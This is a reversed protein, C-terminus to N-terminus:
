RIQSESHYTFERGGKKEVVTATEVVSQRVLQVFEQLFSDVGAKNLANSVVHVPRNGFISSFHTEWDMEFSDLLNKIHLGTETDGEISLCRAFFLSDPDEARTALLLFDVLRGRICVDWPEGSQDRVVRTDRVQFQWLNGTDTITLCIRKDNLELLREGESPQSSLLHNAILTIVKTHISDPCTELFRQLPWLPLHM